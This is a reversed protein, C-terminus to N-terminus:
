GCGPSEPFKPDTRIDAREAVKREETKPQTKLIWTKLTEYLLEADVPKALHANMGAEVTALIDREQVNATWAIIPITKADKRPLRRIEKAAELGDMVPMRLDMLIAAYYYEPSNMVKEVAIRGNEARETVAGEIELLDMAIEANEEVDDVVLIRQNELSISGDTCAEGEQGVQIEPEQAGLYPLPLRLVFTTGRTKESEVTISGNMLTVMRNTVALSMGGGGYRNTSSSDEQSFVEFVKPLFDTGMGIGTDRVTFVLTRMEAAASRDGSDAAQDGSAQAIDFWVNGPPDTYKVANDLMSLLINKVQLGDGIYNGVAEPQLVPMYNLGKEDCLTQIMANLQKFIDTISFPEQKLQMGGTQLDNMDLINEILGLLYRASLDIKELKDRTHPQIEPSRLALRNLGIIVNMPTRMEHSISALLTSKTKSSEEAVKLQTELEERNILLETIMHLYKYMVFVFISGGFLISSVIIDPQVFLGVSVYGLFFLVLLIIPLYLIMGANDWSKRNRIYRAFHVFGLINCIMLASGLFIMGYFLAQIM